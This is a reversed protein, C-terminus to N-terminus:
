RRGLAFDNGRSFAPATPLNVSLKFDRGQYSVALTFSGAPMQRFLYNGERDSVCEAGTEVVRVTVGSLGVERSQESDYTSVKGAITRVAQVRLTIQKPLGVTLEGAIPELGDTVYGMPLSEPDIEARFTGPKLDVITFAGGDDTESSYVKPGEFVGVKVGSVPAGADNLIRGILRARSFAIGFNVTSDIEATV